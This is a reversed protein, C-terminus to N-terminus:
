SKHGTSQTMCPEDRNKNAVNSSRNPTREKRWGAPGCKTKRKKKSYIFQKLFYLPRGRAENKGVGM